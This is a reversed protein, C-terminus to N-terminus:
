DQPVGPSVLDSCDRVDAEPLGKLQGTVVRTTSHSSLGAGHAHYRTLVEPVYTTHLSGWHRKLFEPDEGTIYRECFRVAGSRFV